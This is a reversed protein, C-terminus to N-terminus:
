QNKQQDVNLNQVFLTLDEFRMIKGDYAHTAAQTEFAILGFGMPTQLDKVHVYYATLGAIWKQNEYSHVWVRDEKKLGDGHWQILCGISDFKLYGQHAQYIACAFQKEAIIMRCQDCTDRGYRMVPPDIRSPTCGAMIMVCLM